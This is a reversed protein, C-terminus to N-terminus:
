LAKSMNLVATFGHNPPLVLQNNDEDTLWLRFSALQRPEAFHVTHFTPDKIEKVHTAGFIADAGNPIVDLIATSKHENHVTENYAFDAHLMIMTPRNLQPPHVFTLPSGTGVTGDLGLLPYMTSVDTGSSELFGIATGTFTAVIVHKVPDEAFSLTLFAGGSGGLIAAALTALDYFGEEITVVVAPGADAIIITDNLGTVVNYFLNPISVSRLSVSLIKSLAWQNDMNVTFQAPNPNGVNSKAVCVIADRRLLNNQM